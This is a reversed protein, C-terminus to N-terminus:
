MKLHPLKELSNLVKRHNGNQHLYNNQRRMSRSSNIVYIRKRVGSTNMNSYNESVRTSNKVSNSFLTQKTISDTYKEPHLYIESGKSKFSKKTSNGIKPSSILKKTGIESGRLAKEKWIKNKKITKRIMPQMQKFIQQPHNMQLERTGRM